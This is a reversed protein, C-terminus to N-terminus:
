EEIVDRTFLFFIAGFVVAAIALDMTRVRRTFPSDTSVRVTGGQRLGYCLPLGRCPPRM